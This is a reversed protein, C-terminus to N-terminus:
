QKNKLEEKLSKVEKELSALKLILLQVYDVSLIGNENKHVIENLGANEVDQAIVGYKKEKEADSKFNFSKLDIANVKELTEDDITKINEKLKLDSSNYFANAVIKNGGMCVDHEFEYCNGNYEALNDLSTPIYITNIVDNTCSSGPDYNGNTKDTVTGGTGLYQYDLTARGFASVCTPITVNIESDASFPDFQGISSGNEKVTLVHSTISHHGANKTFTTTSNNHSVSITTDASVLNIGSTSNYQVDVTVGRNSPNEAKIDKVLSEAPIYTFKSHQTGDWTFWEMEIYWRCNNSQTSCSSFTQEGTSADESVVGYVVRADKILHDKPLNIDGIKRPNTAGSDQWLTYTILTDASDGSPNPSVTMYVKSRDYVEDLALDVTTSSISTIYTPRREIVITGSGGSTTCDSGGIHLNSNAFISVNNGSECLREAAFLSVNNGSEFLEDSAEINITTGSENIEESDVNISAGGSINVNGYLNTINVDNIVGLINVGTAGGIDTTFGSVRTNISINNEECNIGLDSYTFGFVTARDEGNVCANEAEIVLEKTVDGNCNVGIKTTNKGYFAATDGAQECINDNATIIIDNESSEIIDQKATLGLNTEAAHIIVKGGKVNTTDATVTNECNVGVNTNSVGFITAASESEYCISSSATNNISDAIEVINNIAIKEISDSAIEKLNGDSNLKVSVGNGSAANEEDIDGSKLQVYEDGQIFNVGSVANSFINVGQSIINEKAKININDVSTTASCNEENTILIGQGFVRTSEAITAGSNCNCDLGVNTEVGYLNAKDDGALCLDSASITIKGRECEKLVINDSELTIGSCGKIGVKGNGDSCEGIEIDDSKLSIRDCSNIDTTNSSISVNNTNIIVSGSNSNDCKEIVFENTNANIGDCSNINTTDSSISVNNTGVVVNSNGSCNAVVLEDTNINVGNCSNIDTNTTTITVSGNGETCETIKFDDTNIYNHGCSDINVNNFEVRANGDGDNCSKIFLDNTSASIGSCSYIVTNDTIISVKSDASGCSVIEFENTENSIKDCSKVSVTTASAKVNTTNIVINGGNDCENINLNNTNVNIENCSNINTNNLVDVNIGTGSIAINNGNITTNESVTNDYCSVGIKTNDQGFLTADNNAEVCVDEESRVVIGDSTLNTTGSAEININGDAYVSIDGENTSGSKNINTTILTTNGYINTNSAIQEDICDLGVNTEDGYVNVKSEGILCLDDVSITIQGDGCEGDTLIINMSELKIEDCSKINTKSSDIKVIGDEGCQTLEINDSKIEVNDCADVSVIKASTSVNTTNIIVNGSEANCQNISFNDTNANISQCSKIDTTDASINVDTTNLEVEGGENCQVVKFSNTETKVEQCSKIDTTDASVNMNTTNFSVEGNEGCENVNFKNTFTNVAECSNVDTTAASIIVNTSDIVVQGGDNCEKIEFKDTENIIEGCSKINTTNASINVNTTNVITNGSGNECENLEFNNTGLKFSDCAKIEETDASINVNTVDVIIQGDGCEVIEFKNTEAKIGDCSEINTSSASIGVNTVDVLVHGGDECEVIEFDNTSTKVKDCSKIDTTDASVNVNTTNINVTGGSINESIEFLDTSNIISTDAINIITNASAEIENVDIDLKSGCEGDTGKVETTGNLVAHCNTTVSSFSPNAGQMAYRSMDIFFGAGDTLGGDSTPNVLLDYADRAGNVEGHKATNGAAVQNLKVIINSKNEILDQNTIGYSGYTDASTSAPGEAGRVYGKYPMVEKKEMITVIQEDSSFRVVKDRSNKVSLFEQGAANNVAIEGVELTAPTPQKDAISSHIHQLKKRDKAM